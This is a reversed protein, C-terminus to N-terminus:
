SLLGILEELQETSLDKVSKVGNGKMFEKVKNKSETTTMLSKLKAKLEDINQEEEAKEQEEVEQQVQKLDKKLLNHKLPRKEHILPLHAFLKM